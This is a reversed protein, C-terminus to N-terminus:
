KALICVANSRIQVSAIVLKYHASKRLLFILV